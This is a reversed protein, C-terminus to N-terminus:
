RGGRTTRRPFMDTIIVLIRAHGVAGTLLRAFVRISNTTQPSEGKVMGCDQGTKGWPRSKLGQGATFLSPDEGRNYPMNAETPESASVLKALPSLVALGNKDGTSTSLRRGTM